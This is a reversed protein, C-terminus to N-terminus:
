SRNTQWVNQTFAAEDWARAKMGPIDFFVEIDFPQKDILDWTQKDSKHLISGLDTARDLQLKKVHPIAVKLLADLEKITRLSFNTRRHTVTLGNGKATELYIVHEDHWHDKGPGFHAMCKNRLDIIERHKAKLAENYAGTVGVNFRNIAQAHTARAYVIVAHTLLANGTHSTQDSIAKDIDKLLQVSAAVDTLDLGVSEVAHFAKIARILEKHRTPHLKEVVATLDFAKDPFQTM